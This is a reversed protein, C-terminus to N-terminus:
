SIGEKYMTLSPICSLLWLKGETCFHVMNTWLHSTKNQSVHQGSIM